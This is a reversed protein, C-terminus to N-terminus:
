KNKNRKRRIFIRIIKYLAFIVIGYVFIRTKLIFVLGELFFSYLYQLFPQPRTTDSLDESEMEKEQKYLAIDKKVEGKKQELIQVYENFVRAVTNDVKKVPMEISQPLSELLKDRLKYEQTEKSDDKKQGRMKIFEQPTTYSFPDTGARLESENNIGDEDFDKNPNQKLIEEFVIQSDAEKSNTGIEKEIEDSVGDNDDDKDQEDGIDDGDTDIDIQRISEQMKINNLDLQENEYGPTTIRAENISAVIIHKGEKAQWDVWVRVLNGGAEVNFEADGIFDANDYFEIRGAIDLSSSNFVASYIRVNEGAFFPDHSYWINDSLFGASIQRTTNAAAFKYSLQTQSLFLILFIFIIFVFYRKMRM